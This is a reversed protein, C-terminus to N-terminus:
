DIITCRYKSAQKFNLFLLNDNEIKVPYFIILPQRLGMVSAHEMINVNEIGTGYLAGTRILVPTKGDKDAKLIEEIILDMLDIAEDDSHFVIHPTLSFDKYYDKFNDWGDIDIFEVLLKAIDIFKYGTQSLYEEAKQLYLKEEEPIYTFLISNGGNAERRLQNRNKLDLSVKLNDFKAKYDDLFAM